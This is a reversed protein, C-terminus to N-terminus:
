RFWLIENDSSFMTLMLEVDKRLLEERKIKLVEYKVAEFELSPETTENPREEEITHIEVNLDSDQCVSTEAQPSNEM